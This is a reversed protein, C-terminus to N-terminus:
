FELIPSIEYRQAVQIICDASPIVGDKILACKVAKYILEQTNNEKSSHCLAIRKCGNSVLRSVIIASEDNCLHGQTSEIRKKLYYPYAGTKLMHADYNAELSVLDAMYLNALVEDSVYGLDTAISAVKGSQTKIRYGLCAVSDHSTEYGSVTFAGIEESRGDIAVLEATQPVLNHDYLYDLTAAAGYVPVKYKKLFVNLGSIHDSHEHTILIGCLDSISCGMTKLATTTIRCSKGMDILLYKGNEEVYACNGSSGSYFTTFKAM